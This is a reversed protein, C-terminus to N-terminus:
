SNADKKVLHNVVLALQQPSTTAKLIYRNAGLKYAEEIEKDMDLNSLIVVITKPYKKKLNIARLFEIGNMKPMLIDLLIIDPTQKKVATVAELGNFAQVVQHGEKTLIVNYADNLVEEDEVILVHTM